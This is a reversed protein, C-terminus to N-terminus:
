FRLTPSVRYVWMPTDKKLAKPVEGLSGRDWMFLIDFSLSQLKVYVSGVLRNKPYWINNNWIRRAICGCWSGNGCCQVMFRWVLLHELITTINWYLLDLHLSVNFCKMFDYLHCSIGIFTTLFSILYVM